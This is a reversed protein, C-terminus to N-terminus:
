SSFIVIVPSMFIAQFFVQERGVGEVADHGVVRVTKQASYGQRACGVVGERRERFTEVSQRRLLLPFRAGASGSVVGDVLLQGVPKGCLLGIIGGNAYPPELYRFTPHKRHEIPPFFLSHNLSEVLTHIPLSLSCNHQLDTRM